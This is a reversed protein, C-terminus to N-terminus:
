NKLLSQANALAADTIQAGSLMKAIEEVREADSLRQIKSITRDAIDQKYVRYHATGKAAVQPLHTIAVVQMNTSMDTMIRGMKDAVEGSVGTDIEDFIITPLNKSKSLISKISLMVRSMEGGSAVKAIDTPEGNKNAAFLFRVNDHGSPLFDDSVSHSIVFRANEMGMEHLNSEIDAKIADFKSMRKASLVDAYSSLKDAQIAIKKQLEAVEVDFDGVARLKDAYDNDIAILEEVTAVHHKKLLTYLVDLRSEIASIREPDYEVRESVSELGGLLDALDIRASEVRAIADIDAPLYSQVKRLKAEINNLNSLIREEGGLSDVAYSLAEKISESNVLTGHELELEEIEGAKLRAESLEKHQFKMFETDRQLRANEESLKNEQQVLSRYEKYADYYDRLESDTEAVADIVNLHFSEDSLLLNQHQSHIDILKQGVEKLFSVNVVSDNVFARSKGNPLIERRIITIDDYDVDEQEFIEKLNLQSIDFTAEVVCKKDKDLLVQSDARQGLVLGLAGLMISKGAGTEGTIITMGNDLTLRTSDILAYNSISIETLM